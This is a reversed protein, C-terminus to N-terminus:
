HFSPLCLRIVSVTLESGFKDIYRKNAAHRMEDIEEEDTFTWNKKQSSVPYM